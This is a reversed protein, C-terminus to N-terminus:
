MLPKPGHILAMCLKPFSVDGWGTIVHDARQVIEQGDLEHSVEPGGLVIKLHPRSEKLLQVLATTQTVNWIYVGLGIIQTKGPHEPGLRELLEAAM